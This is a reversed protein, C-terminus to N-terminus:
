CRPQFLSLSGVLQPWRGVAQPNLQRWVQRNGVGIGRDCQHTYLTIHPLAYGLAVGHRKWLTRRLVGQAPQDVRVVLSRQVVGDRERTLLWLRNRVRFRWNWRISASQLWAAAAESGMQEALMAQQSVSLVTIHFESKRAFEHGHVNFQGPLGAFLREDLPLCWSADTNGGPSMILPEHWCRVHSIKTHPVHPRTM